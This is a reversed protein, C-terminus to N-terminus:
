PFSLICYKFESFIVTKNRRRKNLLRDEQTPVLPENIHKSKAPVPPPPRIDPISSSPVVQHPPKASQTKPLVAPPKSSKPGSTPRPPLGSPPKASGAPHSKKRQPVAYLDSPSPKNAPHKDWVQSSPPEVFDFATGRGHSVAPSPRSRLQEERRPQYLGSSAGGLDDVDVVPRSGATSVTQYHSPELDVPGDGQRYYPPSPEPSSGKVKKNKKKKKRGCGCLMSSM